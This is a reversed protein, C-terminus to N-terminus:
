LNLAQISDSCMKRIKDMEKYYKDHVKQMKDSCEKRVQTMEEDYRNQIDALKQNQINCIDRVEENYKNTQEKILNYEVEDFPIKCYEIMELVKNKNALKEENTLSNWIDYRKSINYVIKYLEECERKKQEIEKPTYQINTYQGYTSMHINYADKNYHHTALRMELLAIIIEEQSNYKVNNSEMFQTWKDILRLAGGYMSEANCRECYGHYHSPDDLHSGNKLVGNKLEYNLQKFHQICEKYKDIEQLDSEFSIQTCLAYLCSNNLFLNEVIINSHHPNHQHQFTIHIDDSDRYEDSDEM